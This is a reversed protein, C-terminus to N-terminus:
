KMLAVAHDDPVENYQNAAFIKYTENVFVLAVAMILFKKLKM